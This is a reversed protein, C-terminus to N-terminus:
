EALGIYAINNNSDAFASFDFEPVLFDDIKTALTLKTSVCSPLTLVFQNGGYQMLFDCRFTPAQGMLVNAVTIKKMSTSTATYQYSIKVIQGADATAFTYVGAALSYQGTTPGSVARTFPKGNPGIVGLDVAFTGSNPVTPTITFPSSPIVTGTTDIVEGLQGTTLTQGFFLANLTLGNLQAFKSKGTIKGKGRGVAVPFAYQGMLEKVDFSFDVSTDQQVGLQIPTPNALSNGYADTLATGVMIGSGFGLQM